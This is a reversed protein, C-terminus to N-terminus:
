IQDKNYKTKEDFAIRYRTADMKTDMDRANKKEDDVDNEKTIQNLVEVTLVFKGNIIEPKISHFYIPKIGPVVLPVSHERLYEFIKEYKNFEDKLESQEIFKEMLYQYIYSNKSLNNAHHTILMNENIYKTIFIEGCGYLKAYQICKEGDLTRTNLLLADEDFGIDSIVEDIIFCKNDSNSVFIPYEKGSIVITEIKSNPEFIFTDEELCFDETELIIKKITNNVYIIRSGIYGIYKGIVLTEKDKYYIGKRHSYEIGM